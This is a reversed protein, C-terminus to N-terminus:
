LPTYESWIQAKKQPYLPHGVFFLQLFLSILVYYSFAVFNKFAETIPEVPNKEVFLIGSIITSVVVQVKSPQLVLGQLINSASLYICDLTLLM